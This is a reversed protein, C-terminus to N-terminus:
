IVAIWMRRKQKKLLWNLSFYNFLLTFDLRIFFYYKSANDKYKNNIYLVVSKNDFLRKNATLCIINHDKSIVSIFCSRNFDVKSILDGIARKIQNKDIRRITNILFLFNLIVVLVYELVPHNQLLLTHMKENVVNADCQHRM